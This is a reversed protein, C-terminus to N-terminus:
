RKWGFEVYENTCVYVLFNDSQPVISRFHFFYDKQESEDEYVDGRVFGFGKKRNFFKVRGTLRKDSITTSSMM